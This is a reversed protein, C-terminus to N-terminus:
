SMRWAPLSLSPGVQYKADPGTVPEGLGLEAASEWVRSQAAVHADRGRRSLDRLAIFFRRTRRRAQATVAPIRNRRNRFIGNWSTTAAARPAAPHVTGAATKKPKTM